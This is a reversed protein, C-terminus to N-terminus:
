SLGSWAFLFSLHHFNECYFCAGRELGGIQGKLTERQQETDAKSDEVGRLKRQITERM